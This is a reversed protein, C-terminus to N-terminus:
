NSKGEKNLRFWPQSVAILFAVGGSAISLAFASHLGNMYAELIGPLQAVTFAQRLDTAGTALVLAPKIDPATSALSHVLKNEFVSQAASVILSGGFSQFVSSTLKLPLESASKPHANSV